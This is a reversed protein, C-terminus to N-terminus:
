IKTKRKSKRKIYYEYLLIGTFVVMAIIDLILRIKPSRIYQGAFLSTMILCSSIVFITYIAWLKQGYEAATLWNKYRENQDDILVLKRFLAKATKYDKLNYSAMGKIFYLDDYWSFKFESIALRQIEKDIFIKHQDIFSIALNFRGKSNIAKGYNCVIIIYQRLEEIDKFQKINYLFEANRDYFEIFLNPDEM